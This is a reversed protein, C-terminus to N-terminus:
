NVEGLLDNLEKKSGKNATKNLNVKKIISKLNEYKRWCRGKGISILLSM